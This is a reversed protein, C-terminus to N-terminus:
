MWVFYVYRCMISACRVQVTINVPSTENGCTQGYVYLSMPIIECYRTGRISTSDMATTEAATSTATAAAETTTAAPEMASSSEMMMTTESSSGTVGAADVSSAAMLLAVGAALARFSVM